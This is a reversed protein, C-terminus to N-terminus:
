WMREGGRAENQGRPLTERIADINTSKQRGQCMRRRRRQQRIPRISQNDQTRCTNMKSERAFYVGVSPRSASPMMSLTVGRRCCALEATTMDATLTRKKKKNPTFSRPRIEQNANSKYCSLLFPNQGHQRHTKIEQNREREHAHWTGGKQARNPQVSAVVHARTNQQQDDIRQTRGEKPKTHSMYM